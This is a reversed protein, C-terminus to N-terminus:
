LWPEQRYFRKGIPCHVLGVLFRRGTSSRSNGGGGGDRLAQLKDRLFLLAIGDVLLVRNTAENDHERDGDMLTRYVAAASQLTSGVYTRVTAGATRLDHEFSRQVVCGGTTSDPPLGYVLDVEDSTKTIISAM